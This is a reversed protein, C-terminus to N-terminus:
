KKQGVTMYYGESIDTTLIDSFNRQALLAEVEVPAVRHDQPPGIETFGPKWDVVGLRGGARLIRYAEEVYGSRNKLEHFVAVMIVADVSNAPLPLSDEPNLIWAINRLGADQSRRRGEIIMQEQLDLAFLHGERGVREAAPITVYGVGCGLDALYSGKEVQLLDLMKDVPLLEQRRPNDLKAFQRSDFLHTM